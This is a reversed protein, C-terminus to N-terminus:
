GGLRQLVIGRRIAYDLVWYGMRIPPPVVATLLTEGRSTDEYTRATPISIGLNGCQRILADVDMQQLGECILAKSYPPSLLAAPPLGCTHSLVVNWKAPDRTRPPTPIEPVPGRALDLRGNAILDARREFERAERRARARDRVWGILKPAAWQAAKVLLNTMNATWKM